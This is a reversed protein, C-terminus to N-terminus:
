CRVSQGSCSCYSSIRGLNLGSVRECRKMGQQGRQCMYECLIRFEKHEVNYCVMEWLLLPWTTLQALSRGIKLHLLPISVGDDVCCWKLGPIGGDLGSNRPSNQLGKKRPRQTYLVRLWFRWEDLLKKWCQRNEERQQFLLTYKSAFQLSFLNQFLLLSVM